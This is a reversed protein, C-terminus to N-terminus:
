KGGKQLDFDADTLGGAPVTKTLQSETNYKAPVLERPAGRRIAKVTSREDLTISVRNEGVCAGDWASNGEYMKLTYRGQEDTEGQAAPPSKGAPPQAASFSVLAGVLPKGDMTVKGSVPAVKFGRTDCGATLVALLGLSALVWGGALRKM